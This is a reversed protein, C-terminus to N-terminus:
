SKDIGLLKACNDGMIKELVSDPLYSIRDLHTIAELPSALPYDSGLMIYETDHLGIIKKLLEDSIFQMSSSTDIFIPLGAIEKIVEEWMLYGGLHAAIIQLNPFNKYIEKIKVPTSLNDDLRAEDGVHVMLVFEGAIEEFLECLKEDKLNINQFEPHLKIGKVGWGRLRNIEHLWDECDVHYTGFPYVTFEDSVKEKQPVVINKYIWDHAPKVQDGKTAACLCIIADLEAKKAENKLETLTGNYPTPMKYYNILHEVAKEAIKDAFAHTHCDIRYSM